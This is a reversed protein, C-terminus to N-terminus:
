RDNILIEKVAVSDPSPASDPSAKTHDKAYRDANSYTHCKANSYTHCKTNGDTNCYAHAYADWRM